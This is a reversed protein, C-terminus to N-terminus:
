KGPKLVVGKKTRGDILVKLPEEFHIHRLFDDEYVAPQGNLYELHYLGDNRYPNITFYGIRFSTLNQFFHTGQSPDTQMNQLGSEVILRAESIQTWKVPIGLWPNSSGWRGPGILIYNNKDNLFQKNLAEIRGAIETNDAPKYNEPKVYVMDRLHTLTGNGLAANSFLIAEESSRHELHIDVRQDTVVIPRIQLFHFTVPEGKPVDMNMAFEIEVPCGMEQEGLKLFDMILQTLPIKNHQLINSFTILRKGEYLVGARIMNNEHDYTSAIHRLTKDKEAVSIHLRTLNDRDNIFPSFDQQKLDISFFHRQTASLAMSPTSLQLIKKPYKPSFRLASGGDVIYKGLGFALEVVGDESREPEIPYFNVSRAVGSLTPYFRDEHGTGCVEQLVVAMKEEDIVNSTANIYAKATHYFASAYVAKIASELNRLMKEHDSLLPLMYTAYIGAFPQYHSDELKSSSRVAIPARAVPIFSKLDETLREPLKAHLFHNLISLDPLDSLAFPYLQNTELFEDFLDTGIVVTRPISVRIGSYKGALRNKKILYDFFALGRAKGGISGEGIRAFTHFQDFSERSFSSIVGQGKAERYAQIAQIFFKRSNEVDELTRTNHERVVRGISFLGRAKLWKSLHNQSTHFFLVEGPINQLVGLFSKLNHARAVELLTIPDRFIFDGFGFHDHIYENVLGILNKNYKDLFGVRLEHAMIANESDSSQLLIPIQPDEKRMIRCLEFGDMSTSDEQNEASFTVDSIVGILNNKYHGFMDVAEQFSTALLIRPRARMRMMRQHQNLGEHQFERSQKMVMKYFAPLYSSIYRISDEVVLIAQVGVEDMDHSANMRDELLKIIAVLLDANGLWTFVYDVSSLDENKLQESVETSYHTLVVFPIIPYTEKILHSMQFPDIDRLSLMSIVLDVSERNLIDLADKASDARLFAPPQSLHLSVYENFIQEDIRGDEELMFADYSSCILLVRRIRNQMLSDFDTERFVPRYAKHTLTTGMVFIEGHM